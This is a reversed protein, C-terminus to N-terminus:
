KADIFVAPRERLPEEQLRQLTQNGIQFHVVETGPRLPTLAKSKRGSPSVLSSKRMTVWPRLTCTKFAGEGAAVADSAMPSWM